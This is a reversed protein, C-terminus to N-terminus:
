VNRKEDFCGKKYCANIQRCSRQIGGGLKPYQPSLSVKVCVSTKKENPADFGLKQFVIDRCTLFLSGFGLKMM